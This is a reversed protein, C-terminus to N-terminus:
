IEAGANEPEAPSNPTFEDVNQKVEKLEDVDEASINSFLGSEKLEDAIQDERLVGNQIFINAASAFTNLANIKQEVTLEALSPFEFWWDQPMQGFAMYCLLPDIRELIPRIRSEQLGHIAEHYNQIDEAGSAFGAASQGFLITVPMDAAGAVANRFEVLLDKLGTFSLEKQEYENESDILLSNTTSKIAQVSAMASAIENERGSALANTLNTMKFVDVKSETVLEGINESLVDYRKLTRYVPELDSEGWIHNEVSLAKPRANVIILRSYHVQQLGNIQYYDSRGFNDSLIDDNLAGYGSIKNRHLLVLRRLQQNEALPIETPQDTVILIGVGGYLSAWICAQEIIEKLKFKRELAEIKELDEASLDNSNIERWRRVMDYARKVCVKGVVWNDSWMAEIENQRATLPINQAYELSNLRKGVFLRNALSILSDKFTLNM